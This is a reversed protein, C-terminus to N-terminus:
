PILPRFGKRIAILFVLSGLVMGAVWLETPSANAVALPGLAEGEYAAGGIDGDVYGDQDGPM